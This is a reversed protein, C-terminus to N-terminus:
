EPVGGLALALLTFLMGDLGHLHDAWFNDLVGDLFRYFALNNIRYWRYSLYSHKVQLLGQQKIGSCKHYSLIHWLFHGYVFILLPIQFQEWLLNLQKLSSIYSYKQVTKM